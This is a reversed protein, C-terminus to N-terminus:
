LFTGLSRVCGVYVPAMLSYGGRKGIGGVGEWGGNRHAGERQLFAPHPPVSPLCSPCQALGQM